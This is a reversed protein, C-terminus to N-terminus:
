KDQWLLSFISNQLTSMNYGAHKIVVKVMIGAGLISRPGDSFHWYYGFRGDVFEEFAMQNLYAKEHM